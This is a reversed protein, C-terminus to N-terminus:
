PRFEEVHGMVCKGAAFEPFVRKILACGEAYQEEHWQGVAKLREDSFPKLAELEAPLPRTGIRGYWAPRLVEPPELHTITSHGRMAPDYFPEPEWADCSIWDTGIISSCRVVKDAEARSARYHHDQM